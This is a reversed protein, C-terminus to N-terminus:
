ADQSRQRDRQPDECDDEAAGDPGRDQRKPAPSARLVPTSPTSDRSAVAPRDQAEAPGSGASGAPSLNTSRGSEIMLSGLSDAASASPSFRRVGSSRRARSRWYWRSPRSPSRTM